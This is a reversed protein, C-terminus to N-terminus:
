LRPSSFNNARGQDITVKPQLVVVTGSKDTSFHPCTDFLRTMHFVESDTFCDRNVAAFFSRFALRSPSMESRRVTLLQFVTSKPEVNEIPRKRTRSINFKNCFFMRIHVMPVAPEYILVIIKTETPVKSNPRDSWPVTEMRKLSCRPTKNDYILKFTGNSPSNRPSNNQVITSSVDFPNRMPTNISTNKWIISVAHRSKTFVAASGFVCKNRRVPNKLISMNLFINSCHAMSIARIRVVTGDVNRNKQNRQHFSSPRQCRKKSCCNSTLLNIHVM